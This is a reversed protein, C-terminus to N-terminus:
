QAQMSFRMEYNKNQLPRELILRKTKHLDNKISRIVELVKLGFGLKLGPNSKVKFM